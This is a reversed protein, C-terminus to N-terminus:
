LLLYFISTLPSPYLFNVSYTSEIREHDSETLGQFLDYTASDQHVNYEQMVYQLTDLPNVISHYQTQLKCIHM